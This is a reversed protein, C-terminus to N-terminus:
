HSEPVLDIDLMSLMQGLKMAAGKMGGLVTVAQQAAQLASRQALVRRAEEPRGIMSLRTGVGRAAQGAALRGLRGGRALRGRPVHQETMGRTYGRVAPRVITHSALLRRGDVTVSVFYRRK